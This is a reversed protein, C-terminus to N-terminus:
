YKHYTLGTLSIECNTCGFSIPLCYSWMNYSLYFGKEYVNFIMWWLGWGSKLVKRLNGSM